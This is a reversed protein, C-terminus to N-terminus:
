PKLEGDDEGPVEMFGCTAMLGIAGKSRLTDSLDREAFEKAAHWCVDFSPQPEVHRIDPRDAPMVVAVILAIAKLSM